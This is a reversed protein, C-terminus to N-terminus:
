GRYDVFFIGKSFISICVSGDALNMNEYRASAKKMETLTKMSLM